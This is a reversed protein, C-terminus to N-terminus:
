KHTELFMTADRESKGWKREKKEGGGLEPGNMTPVLRAVHPGPGSPVSPPANFAGNTDVVLVLRDAPWWGGAVGGAVGRRVGM